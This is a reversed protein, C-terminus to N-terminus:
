KAYIKLFPLRNSVQKIWGLAMLEHGFVTPYVDDWIWYDIVTRV